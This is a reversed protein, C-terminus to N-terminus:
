HRLGGTASVICFATKLTVIALNSQDLWEL